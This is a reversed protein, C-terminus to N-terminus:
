ISFVEGLEQKLLERARQLQKRVAAEGTKTIQSIERTSYGEYYFLHVAIRYKAPLAAVADLVAREEPSMASAPIEEAESLPVSTKRRFSKLLNKCHNVTVRLMWAKEAERDPFADRHAFRALFVDHTIDEADQVNRCYSMATRYVTNKWRQYVAAMEAREMAAAEKRNIRTRILTQEMDTIGGEPLNQDGAKM